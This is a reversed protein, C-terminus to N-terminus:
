FYFIVVVNSVCYILKQNQKTIKNAHFEFTKIM